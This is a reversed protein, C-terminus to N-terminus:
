KKVMVATGKGKVVYYVGAPLKSIDLTISFNGVSEEGMPYSVVQAGTSQYIRIEADDVNAPNSYRVTIQNGAPNPYVEIGSVAAVSQSIPKGCVKLWNGGTYSIDVSYTHGGLDKDYYIGGTTGTLIGDKYWRYHRVLSDLGTYEKLDQNNIFEIKRAFHVSDYYLLDKSLPALLQITYTHRKGTATSIVTLELVKGSPSEAITIQSSDVNLEGVGDLEIRNRSDVEIALDVASCPLSLTYNYEDPAFNPSLMGDGAIVRLDILQASDAPLINIRRRETVAHWSENGAQTATITVTGRALAYVTDSGNRILALSNDSSEFKIPLETPKGGESVAQAVLPYRNGVIMPDDPNFASIQQPAKAIRLGRRDFVARYVDDGPQFAVIATTGAKVFRVVAGWLTDNIAVKYRSTDDSTIIRFTDQREVVAIDRNDVEYEVRRSRHVATDWACAWVIVRASDFRTIISDTKDWVLEQPTTGGAIITLSDSLYTGEAYNPNTLSVISVLYNGTDSGIRADTYTKIGLSDPIIPKGNIHVPPSLLVFKPAPIRRGYVVTDPLVKIVLGKYPNVIIEVAMTDAPVPTEALTDGAFTVTIVASGAGRVDAAWRGNSRQYVSIVSTDDSHYRLSDSYQAYNYRANLLLSDGYTIEEPPNFNIRTIYLTNPKYEVKYDALPVSSDPTVLTVHERYPKVDTLYRAYRAADNPQSQDAWLLECQPRRFGAAELDQLRDWAAYGSITSRYRIYSPVSYGTPTKLFPNGANDEDLVLVVMKAQVTLDKRRVHVMQLSDIPQYRVTDNPVFWLKYHTTMSDSVHPTARVNDFVFHGFNGFSFDPDTIIYDNGHGGFDAQGLSDGYTLSATPWLPIVPIKREWRAYLTMNGAGMKDTAFDWKKGGLYWGEFAGISFYPDAIPPPSILTDYPCNSLHQYHVIEGSPTGDAATTDARFIVTYKRPTWQAYITTDSAFHYATVDPSYEDTSGGGTPQTNWKSFTYGVREPLNVYAVKGQYPIHLVETSDGTRRFTGGNAHLTLDFVDPVWYAHLTLNGTSLYPTGDYYQTGNGNPNSYWGKFGQKNYGTRNPTRLSGVPDGYRIPTPHTYSASDPDGGNGFRGGAATGDGARLTLTHSASTWDATFMVTDNPSFTRFVSDNGYLTGTPDQWGEFHYANPISQLVPLVGSLIIKEGYNVTIPAPYTRSIDYYGPYNPNFFITQPRAHWQAYLVTDKGFRYRSTSDFSVGSGNREPNYNIFNYGARHPTPLGTAVSDYTIFVSLTDRDNENFVGGDGNVNLTLKYTNVTWTAYLTTDRTVRDTSIWESATVTDKIWKDFEHGVWVPTPPTLTSPNPVAESQTLGDHRFDYTVTVSGAQWHAFLTTDTVFRYVTDNTYRIGAGVGAETFWGEFGYSTSGTTTIVSPLAPLSGRASIPLEYAVTISDPKTPVSSSFPGAPLSLDFKILREVPAWKAWFSTDCTLRYVSDSGYVKGTGSPNLYYGQFDYGTRVPTPLDNNGNSSRLTADFIVTSMESYTLGTATFKASADADANSRLRVKYDNPVWNVKLKLTDTFHCVSDTSVGVGAKYKGGSGDTNYWFGDYHYGTRAPVPLNRITDDYPISMPLYVGGGDADFTIKYLNAEWQAYVTDDGVVPYLPTTTTYPTGTGDRLTNWQTFTYGIRSPDKGTLNTMARKYEVQVTDGPLTITDSGYNNNLYLRYTNPSWSAELIINTSPLPNPEYIRNNGWGTGSLSEKWEVFTYGPYSNAVPAPLAGLTNIPKDYVVRHVTDPKLSNMYKLTLEFTDPTWQAYWDSNGAIRYTSDGTYVTGMGNQQANWHKFTYGIRSVIPLAGIANVASEYKVPHSMTDTGNAFLIGEGHLKITYQKSQWYAYLFVTDNNDSTLGSVSAQDAYPTGSGGATTEVDRWREFDYGVRQYLNPSLNSAPTFLHTSPAMANPNIVGSTANANYKVYYTNATWHPSLITNAAKNWTRVSAPTADYYQTGTGDYYGTFQYGSRDPKGLTSLAGAKYGTGPMAADYTARTSDHSTGATVNTKDFTISYTNATWCGYINTTATIGGFAFPTGTGCQGATIRTTYWGNFTYGTRVPTFNRVAQGSTVSTDKTTETAGDNYFYHVTFTNTSWRAYLTTNGPTTYTNSTQWQAGVTPDTWWGSFNWGSRAPTAPPNAALTSDFIVTRSQSTTGDTADPSSFTITYSNPKWVAYLYVSGSNTTTLNSVSQGSTYAVTNNGGVTDWGICKYGARKVGSTDALNFNVGYTRNTTSPVPTAAGGNVNYIVNYNNAAWVAYLHATDNQTSKINYTGTIAATTAAYIVTAASSSTDWGLCHYGTLSLDSSKAISQNAADYTHTGVAPVTGTGGNGYYKVPYTIPAWVAYLTATSDSNSTPNSNAAPATDLRVLDSVYVGDTLTGGVVPNASVVTGGNVTSWGTFTYGTKTLVNTTLKEKAKYVFTSNAMTPAADGGNANYSGAYTIPKIAGVVGAAGNNRAQGYFDTSPFNALGSLLIGLANSATGGYTPTYGSIWTTLPIQLKNNPVSPRWDGADGDQKDWVNYSCRPNITASISPNIWVATPTNNYFLNGVINVDVGSGMWLLMAGGFCAKNNVFTCGSVTLALSGPSHAIAGGLSQTQDNGAACTLGVDLNSFICSKVSLTGRNLVGGGALATAQVNRFHVRNATLTSTPSEVLFLRRGNGGGSIAIGNGNLTVNKGARIILCSKPDDGTTGYGYQLVISDGSFGNNLNPINVNITFNQNAGSAANIQEIAYRLTGTKAATANTPDYDNHNTVAFDINKQIAGM